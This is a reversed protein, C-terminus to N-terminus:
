DELVIERANLLSFEQHSAIVVMGDALLHENIMSILKEKSTTDLGVFPEDLLWLPRYAVLLKAICLRRRQGNSLIRVPEDAVQLLGLESLAHHCDGDGGCYMQWFSINEFVTLAEKVANKHGIYHWLVEDEQQTEEGRVLTVDGSVPTHLEAIVKLLSSKGTGNKGRVILASGGSLSFSLGNLLSRGGRECLLSKVILRLSCDALEGIGYKL